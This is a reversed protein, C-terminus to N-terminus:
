AFEDDFRGGDVSDILDMASTVERPRRCSPVRVSNWADSVSRGYANRLDGDYRHEMRHDRGGTSPRPKLSFSAQHESGSRIHAAGLAAAGFLGHEALLRSFETHASIRADLIEERGWAAMGPGVGLIPNRAWLELDALLIATEARCM